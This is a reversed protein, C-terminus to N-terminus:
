ILNNKTYQELSKICIYSLYGVIFGTFIGSWILITFYYFIVNNNIVFAFVLIQGLNHCVAGIISIGIVSFLSTKKALIMCSLAFFSGTVSYMISYIGGFMFGVVLAKVLGIFVAEIDGLLYLAIVVVINSIGLKVGPIAIPITLLREIYGMLIAQSILLGM